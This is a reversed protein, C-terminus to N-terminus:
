MRKQAGFGNEKSALPAAKQQSTTKQKKRATGKLIHAKKKKHNPQKFLPYLLKAITFGAVGALLTFLIKGIAPGFRITTDSLFFTAVAALLSLILSPFVTGGHILWTICACTLFVLFLYLATAWGAAVTPDAHGWYAILTWLFVAILTLAVLILCGAIILPFIRYTKFITVCKSLLTNRKEM